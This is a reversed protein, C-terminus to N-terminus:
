RRRRAALGALCVLLIGASAPEPIANVGNLTASGFSPFVLQGNNVIPAGNGDGEEVSFLSSGVGVVNFDIRAFLFANSNADYLQDIFIPGTNM